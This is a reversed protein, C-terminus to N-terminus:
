IGTPGPWLVLLHTGEPQWRILPPESGIADSTLVRESGTGIDLLVIEWRTTVDQGGTPRAFAVQEVDPDFAAGRAAALCRPEVLVPHRLLTGDDCEPAQELLAAPGQETWTVGREVPWTAPSGEWRAVVEGNAADAIVTESRVAGGPLAYLGAPAYVLRGSEDFRAPWGVEPFALVEGGPLREIAASGDAAPALVADELPSWRVQTTVGSVFSGEAVKRTQGTEVDYLYMASDVGGYTEGVLVYRGSVSWAPGVRGDCGGCHRLADTVLTRRGTDLDLVWAEYRGGGVEAGDVNVGYLM